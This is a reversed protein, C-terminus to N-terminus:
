TGVVEWAGGEKCKTVDYRIYGTTLDRPKLIMEVTIPLVPIVSSISLGDPVLLALDGCCMAM